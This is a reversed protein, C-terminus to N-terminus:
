ANLSSRICAELSVLLDSIRFSFQKTKRQFSIFTANSGKDLFGREYFDRVVLMLDSKVTEWCAKYFAIPFADPGSANDGEM